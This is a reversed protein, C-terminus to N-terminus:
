RREGTGDEPRGETPHRQRRTPALHRREVHTGDKQSRLLLQVWWVEVASALTRRMSRGQLARGPDPLATATPM